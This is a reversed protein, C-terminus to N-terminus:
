RSEALRILERRVDLESGVFRRDLVEFQDPAMDEGEEYRYVNMTWRREGEHDATLCVPKGDRMVEAFLTVGVDPVMWREWVLSKVDIMSVESREITFYEAFM